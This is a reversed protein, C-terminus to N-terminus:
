LCVKGRAFWSYLACGGDLGIVSDLPSGDLLEMKNSLCEHCSVIVADIVVRLRLRHSTAPSHITSSSEALSLSGMGALKM